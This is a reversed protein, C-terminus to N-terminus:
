AIGGRKVTLGLAYNGVEAALQKARADTKADVKVVWHTTEEVLTFKGYRAFVKVAEDVATGPYIERHLRLEIM